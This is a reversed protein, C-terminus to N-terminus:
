CVRAAPSNAFAAAPVPLSSARLVSLNNSCCWWLSECSSLNGKSFGTTSEARSFVTVVDAATVSSRFAFFSAARAEDGRRVGEVEEVICIGRRIGGRSMLEDIALLRAEARPILDDCLRRASEGLM